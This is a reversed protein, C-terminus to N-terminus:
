ISTSHISAQRTTTVGHHSMRCWICRRALFHQLPSQEAPIGYALRYWDPDFWPSPFRGEAEGYRLYHALPQIGVLRVDPNRALYWDADFWRGANAWIDPDAV